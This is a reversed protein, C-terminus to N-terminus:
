YFTLNCFFSFVINIKQTVMNFDLSCFYYKFFQKAPVSGNGLFFLRGSKVRIGVIILIKIMPNIVNNLYLNKLGSHVVWLNFTNFLLKRLKSGTEQLYSGGM